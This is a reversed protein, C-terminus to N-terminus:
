KLKFFMDSIPSWNVMLKALHPELFSVIESANEEKLSEIQIPTYIGKRQKIIVIQMSFEGPSDEDEKIDWRYVLNMDIDADNYDEYFDEWSSYFESADRSYYNSDSAYYDHDIALDKLKITEM